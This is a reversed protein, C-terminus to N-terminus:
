GYREGRVYGFQYLDLTMEMRDFWDPERDVYQEYLYRVVEPHCYHSLNYILVKAYERDHAPRAHWM